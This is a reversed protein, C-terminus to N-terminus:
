KGLEAKLAEIRNARTDVVSDGTHEILEEYTSILEEIISVYATILAHYDSTLVYDGFEDEVMKGSSGLFGGEDLEYQKVTM